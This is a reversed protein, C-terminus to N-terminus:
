KSSWAVRLRPQSQVGSHGAEVEKTSPNYALAVICSM